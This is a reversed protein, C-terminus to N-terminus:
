RINGKRSAIGYLLDWSQSMSVYTTAFENVIAIIYALKDEVM